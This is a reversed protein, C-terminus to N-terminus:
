KVLFQRVEALQAKIDSSAFQWGARTWKEHTKEIRYKIPWDALFKAVHVLADRWRFSSAPFIAMLQQTRFDELSQIQRHIFVNWLCSYDGETCIPYGIGDHAYGGNGRRGCWPCMYDDEVSGMNKRDGRAAHLNVLAVHPDEPAPKIHM